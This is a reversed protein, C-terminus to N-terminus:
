RAADADVVRERSTGRAETEAVVIDLEPFPGEGITPGMQSYSTPRQKGAGCGSKLAVIDTREMGM